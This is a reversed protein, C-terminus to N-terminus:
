QIEQAHCSGYLSKDSLGTFIYQARTSQVKELCDCPCERSTKSCSGNFM